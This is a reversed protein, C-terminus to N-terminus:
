SGSREMASPPEVHLTGKGSVGGGTVRGGIEGYLYFRGMALRLCGRWGAEAVSEERYVGAWEGDADAFGSLAWEFERNAPSWKEPVKMAAPPPPPESARKEQETGGRCSRSSGGWRAGHACGSSHVPIGGCKVNM